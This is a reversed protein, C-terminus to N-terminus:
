QQTWLAGFEKHGEKSGYNMYPLYIQTQFNEKRYTDLRSYMSSTTDSTLFDLVRVFSHEGDYRVARGILQKLDVVSSIPYSLVLNRMCSLNVGEKIINTAILVLLDNNKFRKIVADKDKSSSHVFINDIGHETLYTSLAEGQAIYKVPVFTPQTFQQIFSLINTYRNEFLKDDKELSFDKQIKALYILPKQSVGHLILDKNEITHLVRGFLGLTHMTRVPATNLATGSLGIRIPAAIKALISSYVDAPVRHVEDVVIIDILPFLYDYAERILAQYTAAVITCGLIKDKDPRKSTLRYITSDFNEEIQSVFDDVILTQHALFLCKLPRGDRHAVSDCLSGIIATKGANTALNAIGRQFTVNCLKEDLLKYLFTIQYDRLTYNKPQVLQTPREIQLPKYNSFDFDAKLHYKELISCMYYILGTYFRGTKSLFCTVHYNGTHRQIYRANEVPLKFSQYIKQEVEQAVERLDVYSYINHVEIKINNNSM